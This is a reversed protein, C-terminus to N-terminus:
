LKDVSYTALGPFGPKNTLSPPQIIKGTQADTEPEPKPHVLSPPYFGKMKDFDQFREWYDRDHKMFFGDKLAHRADIWVWSVYISVVIATIIALIWAAQVIGVNTLHWAMVHM